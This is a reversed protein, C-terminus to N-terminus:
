TEIREPTRVARLYADVDTHPALIGGRAIDESQHADSGSVMILGPVSRAYRLAQDNHSDHRPNGNYVEIGDLHRLPMARLGRRFPHAQILLLNMAQTGAHLEEISAARDVLTILAPVQEELLGYILFDEDGGAIRAEAGLIVELGLKEAEAKAALYGSLQFAARQALRLRANRGAILHDTIVIADYGAAAVRQVLEAATLVGCSSVESTHAHLEIKKM